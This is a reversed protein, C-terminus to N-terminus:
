ECFDLLKAENYRSYLLTFPRFIGSNRVCFVKDRYCHLKNVSKGLKIATALFCSHVYLHSKKDALLDSKLIKNAEPRM